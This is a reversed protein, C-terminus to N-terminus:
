ISECWRELSAESEAYRSTYHRFIYFVHHDTYDKTSSTDETNCRVDSSPICCRVNPKNNLRQSSYQSAATAFGGTNAYGARDNTFAAAFAQVQAADATFISTKRLSPPPANGLELYEKVVEHRMPPRTANQTKSLVFSACTPLLLLIMLQHCDTAM